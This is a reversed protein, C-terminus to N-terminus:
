ATRSPSLGALAGGRESSIYRRLGDRWGELPARGLEQWRRNELVSYRPRPAPAAWASTTTPQVQGEIGVEALTARAFELWTTAGSATLHYLGYSQTQLLEILAPALTGTWTPTGTQDEVVRLSRGEAAARCIALPFNPGTGGFLWATRVLFLERHQEQCVLEGARKSQAYVGLPQPTDTESWPRPEAPPDQSFVFDTSIHCLPVGLQACARAVHGAGDRNVAFALEPNAEADDVRTYAACNVVREPGVQGLQEEVAQPETIDLDARKLGVAEHGLLALQRCLEQGLQGGAGLM